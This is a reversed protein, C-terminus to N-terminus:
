GSMERWRRVTRDSVDLYEAIAAITAHPGLALAAEALRTVHEPPPVPPDM